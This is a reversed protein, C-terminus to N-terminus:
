NLRKGTLSWAIPKEHGETAFPEALVYSLGHAELSAVIAAMDDSSMAAARMRSLRDLTKSLEKNMEELWGVVDSKRYQRRGEYLKKFGALLYAHIGQPCRQIAESVQRILPVFAQETHDTLAKNGSFARNTLDIAHEVFEIKQLMEAEALQAKNNSDVYGDEIHVLAVIQGGTNVLRGAEAFAESGAYEIGFQSVVLDFSRDEFPLEDAGAVTTTVGAIRESLADLAEAAIDTAHLDFGHEADLHAYISGAGSAVDLIRAGKSLGAFVAKWYEALAPHRGGQGSVFVEGGAAGDKEWYESWGTDSM